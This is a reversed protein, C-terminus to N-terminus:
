FFLTNNRDVFKNICQCYDNEYDENNKEAHLKCCENNHQRNMQLFLSDKEWLKCLKKECKFCWDKGCGKLDYGNKKDAYGCITYTTNEPCINYHGCHPCKKKILIIKNEEISLKSYPRHVKLDCFKLLTKKHIDSINRREVLSDVLENIEEKFILIKIDNIISNFEKMSISNNYKKGNIINLIFSKYDPYKEIYINGIDMADSIHSCGLLIIKLENYIKNYEM